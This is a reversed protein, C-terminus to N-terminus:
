PKDRVVITRYKVTIGTGLISNSPTTEDIIIANAGGKRAQLKLDPMARDLLSSESIKAPVAISFKTLSVKAVVRFFGKVEKESNYVYVPTEEPVAADKAPPPPTNSIVPTEGASKCGSLCAALLVAIIGNKVTSMRCKM